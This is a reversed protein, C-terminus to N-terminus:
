HRPQMMRGVSWDPPRRDPRTDRMSAISAVVLMTLFLALVILATM